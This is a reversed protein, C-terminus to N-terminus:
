NAPRSFQRSLAARNFTHQVTTARDTAKEVDYSGSNAPRENGPSPHVGKFLLCLM